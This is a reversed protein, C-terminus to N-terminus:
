KQNVAVDRRLITLLEADSMGEVPRYGRGAVIESPTGEDEVSGGGGTMWQGIWKAVEGVGMQGRPVRAFGLRKAWSTQKRTVLRTTRKFTDLFARGFAVLQADTLDPHALMHEVLDRAPLYGIARAAPCARPVGTRIHAVVEALLGSRLMHECRRDLAAYRAHPNTLNTPFPLFLEHITLDQRFVPNAAAVLVPPGLAAVPQDVLQLEELVKDYSWSQASATFEEMVAADQESLDWPAPVGRAFYEMSMHSGGVVVPLQTPDADVINATLSGIQHVLENGTLFPPTRPDVSDYLHHPVSQMEAASLKNAAVDFSSSTAISSM